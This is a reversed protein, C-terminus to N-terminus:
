RTASCSHELAAKLILETWNLLQENVHQSLALVFAKLIIVLIFTRFMSKPCGECGSSLQLMVCGRCMPQELNCGCIISYIYYGIIIIIIIIYTSICFYLINIMSNDYCKRTVYVNYGCLQQLIVYDLCPINWSYNPRNCDYIGRM